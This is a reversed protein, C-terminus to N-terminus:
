ARQRSASRPARRDATERATQEVHPAAGHKLLFGKLHDMAQSM